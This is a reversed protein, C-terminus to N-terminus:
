QCEALAAVQIDSLQTPLIKLSDLYGAFGGMDGEGKADWDSSGIVLKADAAPTIVPTASSTDSAALVCTSNGVKKIFFKTGAPGYTIVLMDHGTTSVENEGRVFTGFAHEDVGNDFYAQYGDFCCGPAYQYEIYELISIIQDNSPNKITLLNRGYPREKDRDSPVQPRADLTVNMIITGQAFPFNKVDYSLGEDPEFRVRGNGLRPMPVPSDGRSSDFNTNFNVDFGEDEYEVVLKPRNLANSAEKSHFIYQIDLPNRVGFSILSNGNRLEQKVFDTVDISTNKLKSKDYAVTGVYKELSPQNLFNVGGESWTDGTTFIDVAGLNGTGGSISKEVWQLKASKVTKDTIDTVDFKVITNRTFSNGLASLKSLLQNVSGFNSSPAGNDVYADANPSYTNTTAFVATSLLLLLVILSFTKKYEM